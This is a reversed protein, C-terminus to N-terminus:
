AIAAEQAELGNNSASFHDRDNPADDDVNCQTSGSYNRALKASM